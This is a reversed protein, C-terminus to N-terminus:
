RDIGIHGRFVDEGGTQLLEAEEEALSTFLASSRPSHNRETHVSTSHISISRYASGEQLAGVRGHLLVVGVDRDHHALGM